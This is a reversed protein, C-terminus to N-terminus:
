HHQNGLLRSASTRRSVQNRVNQFLQLITIDPTSLNEIIAETYPANLGEGDSAASGPSTAYAIITDTPADMFALGKGSAARSWSREFPNNRYSDLLVISVDYNSLKIGFDDIAKKM